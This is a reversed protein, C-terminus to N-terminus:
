RLATEIWGAIARTYGPDVGVDANIGRHSKGSPAVRVPVGLDQARAAFSEAHRCVDATTTRCVVLFPPASRDLRERPSTFAWYNPDTGFARTLLRRPDNQMLAVLDVAGTDLVVVGDLPGTIRRLGADAGVLAAVHAGASHGMLIVQSPDAGWRAANRRIHAVARALDEAQTRPDAGDGLLRTEVSVLVYGRPVFYGSKDQWVNAAEKNGFAWAGGHLMIILPASRAEPDFYVDYAQEPHAGYSVDRAASIQATAVSAMVTMWISIVGVLRIM